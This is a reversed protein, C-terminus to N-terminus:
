GDQQRAAQTQRRLADLSSGQLVMSLFGAIVYLVLQGGHVFVAYTVALSADVGFLYVLTVRTIYHFSGVGGPSPIAVGIGGIFMIMVADLLSLQYPGAMDFMVLPVYAM